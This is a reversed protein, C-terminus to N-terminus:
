LESGDFSGGVQDQYQKLEWAEHAADITDKGDKGFICLIIVTALGGIIGGAVARVGPRKWFPKKQKEPEEELRVEMRENM